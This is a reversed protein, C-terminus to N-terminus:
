VDEGENSTQDAPATIVVDSVKWTFSATGTNHGDSASVSVAFTGQTQADITGSIAGTDKNISLGAPLGTATYSLADGDADTAAVTLNASPGENGTQDVVPASTPTTVDTVTWTFTTSASNSSPDTATVTVTHPGATQNGLTGTIAGTDKNIS